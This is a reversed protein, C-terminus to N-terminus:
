RKPAARKRDIRLLYGRKNKLDSQVSVYLSGRDDAALGHVAALKGGFVALVSLGDEPTYRWLKGNESDAIYLVGGAYLITEPSFGERDRIPRHLRGDGTLLYLINAQNDAIYLNGGADFAMSEPKGIGREPGLFDTVRGEADVSVVRHKTGDGVLLAGSPALAIGETSGLGEKPGAIRRATGGAQVQWVGGSDDDTFFLRGGEDVVLDEPSKLGSRADALPPMKTGAAWARVASGGEDALYLRGKSWALGDPVVFGDGSAGLLTVSHGEDTFLVMGEKDLGGCGALATAALLPLLMHAARRM